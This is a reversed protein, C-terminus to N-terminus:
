RHWGGSRRRAAAASRGGCIAPRRIRPQQDGLLGRRRGAAALLHLRHLSAHHLDHDPGAPQEAAHDLDPDALLDDPRGRDAPHPDPGGREPEEAKPYPFQELVRYIAWLIPLQLLMPLCGSAPNVHNERWLRMTEQNLRERDNKYKAQLRQVEPQLEQMRRMSRVQTQTLPWLAGRIILTVIVIALGYSGTIGYTWQIWQTFGNLLAGWAAAL